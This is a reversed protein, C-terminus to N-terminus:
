VQVNLHSMQETLTLDIIQQQYCNTRVKYNTEKMMATADVIM